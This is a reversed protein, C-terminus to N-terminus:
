SERGEVCRLSEAANTLSVACARSGSPTEESKLSAGLAVAASLVAGRTASGVERLAHAARLAFTEYTM